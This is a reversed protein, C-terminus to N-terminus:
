SPLALPHWWSLMHNWTAEDLQSPNALGSLITRLVPSHPQASAHRLFHKSSIPSVRAHRIRCLVWLTIVQSAVYLIQLHGTCYKSALQLNCANNQRSWAFAYMYLVHFLFSGHHIKHVNVTNYYCNINSNWQSENLISSVYSRKCQKYQIFTHM